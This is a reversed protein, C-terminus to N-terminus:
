PTDGRGRPRAGHPSPGGTGKPRIAFPSSLRSPFRAAAAASVSPWYRNQDADYTFANQSFPETRHEFDSLSLDALIDADASAVINETTGYTADGTVRRPRLERRSCVRGLPDPM